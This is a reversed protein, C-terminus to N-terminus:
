FKLIKYIKNEKNVKINLFYIGNKLDIKNRLSHNGKQLRKNNMLTMVDRGTIDFIKISVDRPENLSLEIIIENLIVNEVKIKETEIEPISTTIDKSVYFGRGVQYIFVASDGAQVGYAGTFPLTDVIFTEGADQSKGIASIAGPLYFIVYLIGNPSVSHDLIYGISPTITDTTMTSTNFRIIRDTYSGIYFIKRTRDYSIAYYGTTSGIDEEEWTNGYNFSKHLIRNGDRVESIILISDLGSTNDDLEGSPYLIPILGAGKNQSRLLITTDHFMDSTTAFVFSDQYPIHIDGYIYSSDIPEWNSGGDLSRFLSHFVPGQETGGIVDFGSFLIFDPNSPSYEVGGCFSTVNKLVDWSEGYDRTRWLVGGFNTFYLSSDHLSSVSGKSQITHSYIGNNKFEWISGNLSRLIGLGLTGSFYYSGAKGIGYCVESSDVYTFDWIGLYSTGIYIGPKFMSSVLINTPSIFEVDMPAILSDAMATIVQYWPGTFSTAEFIANTTTIFSHNINYPNVQFDRTDGGPITDYIAWNVGGDTSGVIIVSDNKEILARVLNPNSRSHSIFALDSNDITLPTISGMNVWSLGKDNSRWIRYYPYYRDAAYIITDPTESSIALLTNFGKVPIWNEGRDVTRYITDMTSIIAITDDIIIGNGAEFANIKLSFFTDYSWTNGYDYTVWLDFFSIGYCWNQVDPNGIIEIIEGGSPGVFNWNWRSLKISETMEKFQIPHPLLSTKKVGFISNFLFFLYIM